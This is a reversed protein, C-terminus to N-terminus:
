QVVMEKQDKPELEELLLFWDLSNQYYNNDVAIETTIFNDMVYDNWSSYKIRGVYIDGILTTLTWFSVM